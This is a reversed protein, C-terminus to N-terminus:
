QKVAPASNSSLANLGKLGNTQITISPNATLGSLSNTKALDPYKALLAERLMFAESATSSMSGSKILEDYVRAAASPQNKAQYIRAVGLKADELVSSNPFRVSLNQYAALADDQKGQAELCAAVGYAAEAAFPSSPRERVFKAFEGQADTYKDETFLAGAALLIARQGAATGPYESAVKLYASAQVPPSTEGAAPTPQKLALLADSAAMETQNSKWRYTAIGFGVVVAAVFAMIVGKKNTELWALFEYVGVTQTAESSM